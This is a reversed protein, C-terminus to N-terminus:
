PTLYRQRFGKHQFLFEVIKDYNGPIHPFVCSSCDKIKTDGQKIIKPMGGISKCDFHFLPCYCFLCNHKKGVQSPHCSKKASDRPFLRCGKNQFFKSNGL